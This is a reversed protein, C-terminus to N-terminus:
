EVALGFITSSSNFTSSATAVVTNNRMVTYNSGNVTVTLRDGDQIPTSYTVLTTVTSGNVTQLQTRTARVYSTPSAYRLVIAQVQGQPADSVFTVAVQANPSGYNITALARQGEVAPHAVGYTYGDRVFQGVQNTWQKGGLDTLLADISQNPNDQLYSTFTDLVRNDTVGFERGLYNGFEDYFELFVSAPVPSVGPNLHPQHTYASVNIVYRTDKGVAFWPSESTTPFIGAPIPKTAYYLRGNYLVMSGAPYAREHDWQQPEELPIGHLIPIMPDNERGIPIPLCRAGIDATTSSTNRVGIANCDFRTDGPRPPGQILTTRVQNNSVGSTFSIGQWGHQSRSDPDYAATNDDEVLLPEWWQNARREGDPCQEWGYAPAICKYSVDYFRVVDGPQYRKSPEWNFPLPHLMQSRDVTLMLNNTRRLEIEWGSIIKGAAEITAQTGRTAAIAAGEKALSRKRLAQIGPYEPFGLQAIINDVLDIHTVHPDAAFRAAQISTRVRDLGWGIVAMFKALEVNDPAELTLQSGRLMRYHIPLRSWLWAGSNHDVIHLCSTYAAPVWVGSIKIYIAYYYIEGPRVGSDQFSSEPTVSDILILGDTESSPYGYPSKLLRFGEIEGTPQNWTLEITRYNISRASFSDVDFGPNFEPDPGYFRTGYLSSLYIAM